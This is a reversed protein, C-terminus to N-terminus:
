NSVATKPLAAWSAATERAFDQYRRPPHGLLSTLKEIDGGEAVFGRELYGQFMVRIEFASWAPARQWM